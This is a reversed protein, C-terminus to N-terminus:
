SFTSEVSERTTRGAAQLQDASLPKVFVTPPLVLRNGATSTHTVLATDVNVYATPSDHLTITAVNQEAANREEHATYDM